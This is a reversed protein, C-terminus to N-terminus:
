IVVGGHVIASRFGSSVLYGMGAMALGLLVILGAILLVSMRAKKNNILNNGYSFIMFVNLISLFPLFLFTHEKTEMIIKHAWPEPGAKIVPKVDEGYVNVYYFGGMLWSTFLFIVGLVSAIKARKIRGETPNLLEVFVWIFALFGLEGMIAHSGILPHVM